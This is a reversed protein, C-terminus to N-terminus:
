SDFYLHTYSMHTVTFSKYFDSHPWSIVLFLYMLKIKDDTKTPIRLDFVFLITKTKLSLVPTLSNENNM